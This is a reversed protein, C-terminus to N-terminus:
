NLRQMGMALCSVFLAIYLANESPLWSGICQPQPLEKRLRTNCGPKCLSGRGARSPRHRVLYNQHGQPHKQLANAFTAPLLVSNEGVSSPSARVSGVLM